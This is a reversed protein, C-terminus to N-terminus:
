MPFGLSFVLTEHEVILLPGGGGLLPSSPHVLGAIPPPVSRQLTADGWYNGGVVGCGTLNLRSEYYHDQRYENPSVKGGSRSPHQGALWHRMYLKTIGQPGFGTTVFIVLNRGAAIAIHICLIRHMTDESNYDIYQIRQM